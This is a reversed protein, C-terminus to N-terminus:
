VTAGQVEDPLDRRARERSGRAGHDGVVGTVSIAIAIARLGGVRWRRATRGVVAGRGGGVGSGNGRATCVSRRRVGRGGGVLGSADGENGGEFVLRGREDGVHSGGLDDGREGVVGISSKKEWAM